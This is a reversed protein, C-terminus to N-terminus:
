KFLFEPKINIMLYSWTGTLNASGPAIGKAYEMSNSAAMVAFGWEITTLKNLAYTSVLDFECSCSAEKSIEVNVGYKDFYGLEKAMVLSACDTLPIFGFKYAEGATAPPASSTEKTAQGDGCSTLFFCGLALFLIIKSFPFRNSNINYTSM